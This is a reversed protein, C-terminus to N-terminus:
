SQDIEGGSADAVDAGQGGVALRDQPQPEVARLRGTRGFGLPGPPLACVGDDDLRSPPQGQRYGHHACVLGRAITVITKDREEGRWEM